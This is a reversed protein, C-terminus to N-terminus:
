NWMGLFALLYCPAITWPPLFVISIPKLLSLSPDSHFSWVQQLILIWFERHGSKAWSTPPEIDRNFWYLWHLSTFSEPYYRYSQVEKKRRRRRKRVQTGKSNHLWPRLDYFRSHSLISTNLQKISPSYFIWTQRLHWHTQHKTFHQFHPVM